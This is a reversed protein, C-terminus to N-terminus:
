MKKGTAYGDYTWLFDEATKEMSVGLMDDRFGLIIDGGDGVEQLTTIQNFM